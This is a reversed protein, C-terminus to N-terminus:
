LAIFKLWGGYRDQGFLHLLRVRPLRRDIEKDLGLLREPNHLKETAAGM